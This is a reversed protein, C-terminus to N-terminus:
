YTRNTAIQVNAQESQTYRNAIMQLRVIYENILNYFEDMKGKDTTFANHFATNAEGEWMASLNMEATVLAETAVKFRRNLNTIESAQNVLTATTVKFAAM